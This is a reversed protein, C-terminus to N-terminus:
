YDHRVCKYNGKSGEVTLWGGAQIAFYKCIYVTEGPFKHPSTTDHSAKYYVDFNVISDRKGKKNCDKNQWNCCKNDGPDIAGSFGPDAAGGYEKHGGTQDVNIWTDMQNYVCFADAGEATLFVALGALVLGALVLNVRKKM